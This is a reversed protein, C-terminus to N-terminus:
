LKVAGPIDRLVHRLTAEAKHLRSFCAAAHPVFRPAHCADVADLYEKAILALRVLGPQGGSVNLRAELAGELHPWNKPLDPLNAIRTFEHHDEMLDNHHAPALLGCGCIFCPDTVESM